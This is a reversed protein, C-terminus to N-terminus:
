DVISRQLLTFRTVPTDRYPTGAFASPPASGAACSLPTVGGRARGSKRDHAVTRQRLTAGSGCGGFGNIV